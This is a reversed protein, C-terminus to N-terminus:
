FLLQDKHAKKNNKASKWQKHVDKIIKCAFDKRQIEGNFAFKNPKSGSPIKYDRLFTYYYDLVGPLHKEISDINHLKRALPDKVNICVVKWDTEGEDIMAWIGLVKVQIIDGINNEISGIECVDIPDGDGYYNTYPDKHEPDEWTQPLAGYNFPYPYHVFRLKGNKVDQKIPNHKENTSMEMKAQSGRPIEVIMNVINEKKSNPYLKIDHIPSITKGNKKLYVRSKLPNNKHKFVTKM